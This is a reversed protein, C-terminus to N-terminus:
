FFFFIIVVCFDWGFTTFGLSIAIHLWKKGTSCVKLTNHALGTTLVEAWLDKNTLLYQNHFLAFLTRTTNEVKVNQPDDLHARSRCNIFFFTHTDCKIICLREVTKVHMQHVITHTDCETLWLWEDQCATSSCYHPHWVWTLWLWELRSMCNIFLLTPTVSLSDCGSWVTKVQLQHVITHTDCETLWLQEVSDQGAASSCYLTPTVTLSSFLTPTASLSACDSWVTKVQLQHLIFHTDCETLWLWEVSDQGATSSCYHPHQVWHTVVAGCQRLRCIIFLLTHTDCNIFFFTHTDCKTICLREVSDQGATSSSHFPHWVWHTVVVGCQRSRCNIFLLTPTASLSDCGSWM